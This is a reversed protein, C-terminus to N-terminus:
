SDGRVNNKKLALECVTDLYGKREKDEKNGFM